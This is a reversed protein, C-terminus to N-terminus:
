TARIEERVEELLRGLHNQGRGRCVGWFTDNWTNAEILPADGTALLAERLSPESFKLRLIEKMVELKVAEWDARFLEGTVL